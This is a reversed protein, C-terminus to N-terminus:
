RLINRLYPALKGPPISPGHYYTRPMAFTPEQLFSGIIDGISRHAAQCDRIARSQDEAAAREAERLNYPKM